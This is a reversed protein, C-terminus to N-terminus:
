PYGLVLIRGGATVASPALSFQEFGERHRRYRRAEGNGLWEWAFFYLHFAVLWLRGLRHPVTGTSGTAAIFLSRGGHGTAFGM